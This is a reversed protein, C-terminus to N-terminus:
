AWNSGRRLRLFRLPRWRSQPDTLPEDDPIPHFYSAAERPVHLLACSAAFFAGTFFASRMVPLLFTFCCLLKRLEELFWQPKFSKALACVECRM